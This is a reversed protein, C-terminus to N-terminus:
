SPYRPPLDSERFLRSVQVDGNDAIRYVVYWGSAMFEITGPAFPFASTAFKRINDAHPDSLIEFLVSIVSLYEESTLTDFKAQVSQSLVLEPTHSEDSM